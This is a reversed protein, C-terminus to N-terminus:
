VSELNTHPLSKVKRLFLILLLISVMFLSAALGIWLGFPGWNLHFGLFCGLPIGIVWHSFLTVKMCEKTMKFARLIGNLSVQLGDALQFFAAVTFISSAVKFITKDSSFISFLPWKIYFFCFASVVMISTAMGIGVWSYLVAKDFDKMGLSSSVKVCVAHSIGMPVMFTMSALTLVVNHAAAEIVGMVGTLVTVLCFACVELFVTISLPFSLKFTEKLFPINIASPKKLLPLCSFLVTIFTLWRVINLSWGLGEIGMESFPGYGFVFLFGLGLNIFSALFSIINAFLVKEIAQLYERVSQYLFTPLLSFSFLISYNTVPAVLTHDFGIKPIFLILLWLFPIVIVSTILGYFLSSRFYTPPNHGEGKKHAILTSLGFLFGMGIMLFPATLGQSTGIAALTLGSHKGAVYIETTGIFIQGINGFIIPLSLSLLDLFYPIFKKKTM